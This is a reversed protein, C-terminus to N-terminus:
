IFIEKLRNIISSRDIVKNALDISHEIDDYPNVKHGTSSSVRGKPWILKHIGINTFGIGQIKFWLRLDFVALIKSEQWRDFQVKIDQLKGVSANLKRKLVALTDKKSYAPEFSFLLGSLYEM